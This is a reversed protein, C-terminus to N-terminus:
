SHIYGLSRHFKQDIRMENVFIVKAGESGNHPGSNDSNTKVSGDALSECSSGM